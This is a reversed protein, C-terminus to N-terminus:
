TSPFEVIERCLCQCFSYLVCLILTSPVLSVLVIGLNHCEILLLYIGFPLSSFYILCLMWLIFHPIAHWSCSRCKQIPSRCPLSDLSVPRYLGIMDLMGLGEPPVVNEPVELITIVLCDSSSRSPELISPCLIVESSPLTGRKKAQKHYTLVALVKSDDQLLQVDEKPVQTEQRCFPCSLLRPSSEGMAVMKRLCKVCVRHCCSLLKPKRAGADYRNYCIKCELEHAPFALPQCRELKGDQHHTM